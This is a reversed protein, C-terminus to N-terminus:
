LVVHKILEDALVFGIEALFLALLYVVKGEKMALRVFYIM